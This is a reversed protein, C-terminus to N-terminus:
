EDKKDGKEMRNGADHIKGDLAFRKLMRMFLLFWFYHLMCMVSLLIANLYM